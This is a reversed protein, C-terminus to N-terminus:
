IHILSLCLGHGGVSIICDLTDTLLLVGIRIQLSRIKGINGGGEGFGIGLFSQFFPPSVTKIFVIFLDAFRHIGYPSLPQFVFSFWDQRSIVGDAEASRLISDIHPPFAIGVKYRNGAGAVFEGRIKGGSNGQRKYVDGAKLNTKVGCYRSRIGYGHDIEVVDGWLPDNEVLHITGDALAKVAQGKEGRFDVGNHTRWDNMTQSYVQKGDSFVNMVDNSLPLVFLETPKTNTEVDSPKTTPPTVPATTSPGPDPVNTIPKDVQQDKTSSDRICM